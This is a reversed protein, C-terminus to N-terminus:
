SFIRFLYNPRLREPVFEDHPTVGDVLSTLTKVCTLVM